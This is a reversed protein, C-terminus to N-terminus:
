YGKDWEIEANIQPFFYVLLEAFAHEVIDKWPSDYDDPETTTAMPFDKAVANNNNHTQHPGPTLDQIAVKDRMKPIRRLRRQLSAHQKQPRPRFNPLLRGSAPGFTFVM